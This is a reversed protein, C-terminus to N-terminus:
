HSGFFGHFGTRSVELVIPIGILDDNIMIGLYSPLIEDGLVDGLWGNPGGKKLGSVNGRGGLRGFGVEGLKGSRGRPM